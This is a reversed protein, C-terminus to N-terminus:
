RRTSEAKLGAPLIGEPCPRYDKKPLLFFFCFCFQDFFVPPVRRARLVVGHRSKLRDSFVRGARSARLHGPLSLRSFRRRPVNKLARSPEVSALSAQNGIFPHDVRQLAGAFFFAAAANGSATRGWQSHSFPEAVMSAPRRFREAIRCSVPARNLRGPRAAPWSRRWIVPM